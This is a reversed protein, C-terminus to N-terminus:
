FVDLRGSNIDIRFLRHTQDTVLFIHSQNSLGSTSSGDIQHSLGRYLCRLPHDPNGLIKFEDRDRESGIRMVNDDGILVQKRGFDLVQITDNSSFRMRRRTRVFETAQAKSRANLEKFYIYHESSQPITFYGSVHTESWIMNLDSQCFEEILKPTPVFISRDIEGRNRYALTQLLGYRADSLNKTVWVTEHESKKFALIELHNATEMTWLFELEAPTQCLKAVDIPGVLNDIQTLWQNDSIVDHWAVLHILGIDVLRRKHTEFKTLRTQGDPFKQLIIATPSTGIPLIDIVDSVQQSWIIKGLSNRLELRDTDYWIIMAGNSLSCAKEIRATRTLTPSPLKISNLPKAPKTKITKLKSLDTELVLLDANRVLKRVTKMGTPIDTESALPFFSRVLRDILVKGPGFWFEIQDLREKNAHQGLINLIQFFDQASENKVITQCADFADMFPDNADMFQCYPFKDLTEIDFNFREWPGYLIARAILEPPYPIVGESSYSQYQNLALGLWKRRETILYPDEKGVKVLQDTVDLARLPQDNEILQDTWAKLVFKHFEQDTKASDEVLQAFCDFRKALSLALDKKGAKYYLRITLKPDQQSDLSLKAAEEFLDGRELTLVGTLHDELLQSWIYAARRFDGKDELEKALKRYRDALKFFATGGFIPASGGSGVSFDLGSRMEPLRFPFRSKGGSKLGGGLKLALKLAHDIDGRNILKEVLSMRDGFKETLKTGFPSHWKMWGAMGEFFGPGKSQQPGGTNRTPQGRGQGAGKGLINTSFLQSFISSLKFVNDMNRLSKTEDSFLGKGKGKQPLDAIKVSLKSKKSKSKNAISSKTQDIHIDSVQRKFVQSKFLKIEPERWLSLLPLRSLKDGGLTVRKGDWWIDINIIAGSINSPKSTAPSLKKELAYTTLKTPSSAQLALSKAQSNLPIKQPQNFIIILCSNTDIKAQYVCKINDRHEKFNVLDTANADLCIFGICDKEVDWLPVDPFVPSPDSRHRIRIFSPKGL